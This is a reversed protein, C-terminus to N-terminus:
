KLDGWRKGVSVDVIIPISLKYVNEMAEKMIKSVKEELGEKVEAVIEDHVQLIIKIEGKEWEKLERLRDYVEIMGLKVIDAEAGQIPMNIAMREGAARVQFNSSKLEPIYRRRGFITEVYGTKRAELLISDMYKKVGEFKEFYTAIFEKAEFQTMGTQASLGYAGQGYLVGFNITKARSRMEKTVDELPVNNIIAATAKHIDEGKNFIEIMTKDGSVAAAIRLEIQSYDAAVLVNGKEAWFARRVERGLETRIPINQMNPDSGSLRGTAAVAQNFSAHIRATKPNILEPLVDIYTNQLKSLERHEEIMEIIPSMGRLKELESAATSYGTKGKKIGDSMLGMKEFLIDRLQNNSAINFEEGAEKWIKKTVKEIAEAVEQSLKKLHELDVGVGAVEMHALVPILPMEMTEFLEAQEFKKLEEFYLQKIEPFFECEASLAVMDIGFLTEKPADVLEDGLERLMISKMDHAKTNANLLYSAIMIDFLKGAFKRGIKELAKLLQKLDHGVFLKTADEFLEFVGDQEKIKLLSFDLLFVKTETVFIFGNLEGEMVNKGQIVEKVSLESQKKMEELFEPLNESSVRVVLKKKKSQVKKKPADTNEGEVGTAGGGPLRKLLSVFSFKQFLEIMKSRDFDRVRATELDFNLDPVSCEISALQRSVRAGNEDVKLKEIVSDKVGLEGLKEIKKYIDDIGGVKEILEKATKEGIGKVGPINDSSDGRLAKYDVVREPGFGYYERVKDPNYLDFESMGKKLLYVFTDEDVLQLLDRDGTVILTEIGLKKEDLTRKVLTGIVDDAEYGEKTFIPLGFAKVVEYVLPIQDYLEQDAKVRTAKYTDSIKDRFTGGAVDFTVALFEPKVDSLIKLLMSTFGYVANVLSGDKATLPPLAHYARHIIANGDIVVFRKKPTKMTSGYYWIKM